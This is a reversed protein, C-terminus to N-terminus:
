ILLIRQYIKFLLYENMLVDNETFDIFYYINKFNSIIRSILEILQLLLDGYDIFKKQNIIDKRAKKIDNELIQKYTKGRNRNDPNQKRKELIDLKNVLEKHIVIRTKQLIENELLDDLSTFKIGTWGIQSTGDKHQYDIEQIDLFELTHRM